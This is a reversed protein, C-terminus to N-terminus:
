LKWAQRMMYDFYIDDDISASVGSYYNTFEGRTIIGDVVDGPRSEFTKLFEVFVQDETMEGSKFKKHQRANYVGRLDDVTIKGDGTKDLKEFATSILELRANSMPPRLAMLLEDFSISGSNDSDVRNFVEQAEGQKLDCGYDRAGNILEQLNLQRNGDDDFLRFTRGFGNIGNIGRAMCSLRLKEVPDKTTKLAAKAKQKLSKDDVADM